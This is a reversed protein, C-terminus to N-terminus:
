NRGITSKLILAVNQDSKILDLILFIKFKLSFVGREFIFLFIVM